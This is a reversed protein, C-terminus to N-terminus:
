VGAKKVKETKPKSDLKGKYNVLRNMSVDSMEEIKKEM